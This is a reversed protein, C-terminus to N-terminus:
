ISCSKVEPLKALAAELDKKLRAADWGSTEILHPIVGDEDDLGISAAGFM